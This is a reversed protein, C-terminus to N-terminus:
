QEDMVPRLALRTGSHADVFGAMILKQGYDTVAADPHTRQLVTGDDVATVIGNEILVGGSSNIRTAEEIPTSFPDSDFSLSQGLLLHKTLM